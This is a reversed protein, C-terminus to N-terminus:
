MRARYKARGRELLGKAETVVLTVGRMSEGDWPISWLGM